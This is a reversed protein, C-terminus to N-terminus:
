AADEILVLNFDKVVASLGDLDCPHGFIRVPVMTRIPCGTNLNVCVGSRQETTSELYTRLAEPDM